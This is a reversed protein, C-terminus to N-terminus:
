LSNSSKLTHRLTINSLREHENVDMDKRVVLQEQNDLMVSLCLNFDLLLKYYPLIYNYIFM